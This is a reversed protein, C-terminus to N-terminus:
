RLVRLVRQINQSNRSNQTTRRTRDLRELNFSPADFLGFKTRDATALFIRCQTAFGCASRCRSEDMWTWEVTMAADILLLL